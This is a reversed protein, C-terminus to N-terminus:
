LQTKFWESREREDIFFACKGVQPGEDALTPCREGRRAEWEPTACLCSDCLFVEPVEEFAEPPEEPSDQDISVTDILDDSLLEGLPEWHSCEYAQDNDSVQLCTFQTKTPPGDRSGSDV